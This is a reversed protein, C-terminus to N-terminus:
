PNARGSGTAPDLDAPRMGDWQGADMPGPEMGSRSAILSGRLNPPPESGTTLAFQYQLAETGRIGMGALGSYFSDRRYSFLTDSGLEGRFEFPSTYGVDGRFSLGGPANGTVIANRFRLENEISPGPRNIRGAGVQQNADLATGDGLADQARAPAAPLCALGAFSAIIFARTM